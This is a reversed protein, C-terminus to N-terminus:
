SKTEISAVYKSIQEKDKTTIRKKTPDLRIGAFEKIKEKPTTLRIHIQNLGEFDIFEPSIQEGSICGQYFYSERTRITKSKWNYWFSEGGLLCIEIEDGVLIPVVVIPFNEQNLYNKIKTNIEDEIVPNM